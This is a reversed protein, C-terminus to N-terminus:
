KLNTVLTFKRRKTMKNVRRIVVVYTVFVDDVGDCAIFWSFNGWNHINLMKILIECIIERKAFVVM